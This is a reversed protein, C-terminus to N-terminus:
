SRGNRSRLFQIARVPLIAPAAFLYGILRDAFGFANSPQTAPPLEPTAPEYARPSGFWDVRVFGWKDLYVGRHTTARAYVAVESEGNEKIQTRWFDFGVVLWFAACFTGGVVPESLNLLSAIAVLVAGSVVYLVWSPINRFRFKM